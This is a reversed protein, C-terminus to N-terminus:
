DSNSVVGYLLDCFSSSLINGLTVFGSNLLSLVNIANYLLCNYFADSHSFLLFLPNLICYFLMSNNSNDDDNTMEEEEKEEEMMVLM